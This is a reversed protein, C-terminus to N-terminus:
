LLRAAFIALILSCLTLFLKVKCYKKMSLSTDKIMSSTQAIGSLGGFAVVAMALIYKTQLSLSSAAILHIGNTVELTCGLLFKLAEPFPSRNLAFTLISFLIIYGGIKVLTEFGDMIGADIIKFNIQSRSAAKKEYSCHTNRCRFLLIGGLILAPAYLVFLSVAFMDNLCLQQLLVYSAIFSPSVNNAICFLVSAEQECIQGSKLFQASCKSGMPFGFLFGCFLIFMGNQSVPLFCFIKKFWGSLDGAYGSSILLNSLIAAPLLAPLIQEYWLVLGIRSATVVNGPCFLIYVTLFFSILLFLKKKMIFLIPTTGTRHM